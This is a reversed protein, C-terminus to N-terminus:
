VTSEQLISGDSEDESVDTKYLFSDDINCWMGIRGYKTDSSAATSGLSLDVQSYDDFKDSVSLTSESRLLKAVFRENFDHILLADPPVDDVLYVVGRVALTVYSIVIFALLGNDTPWDRIPYLMFVILGSNITTALFTIGVFISKWVGIGEAVCPSPRQTIATMRYAILRYEVLNVVFAPVAMVPIIVGFCTIM